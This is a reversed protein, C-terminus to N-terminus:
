SSSGSAADSGRIWSALPIRTVQSVFEKGDRQVLEHAVLLYPAGGDPLSEIISEIDQSTLSSFERRLGSGVRHWEVPDLWRHQAQTV